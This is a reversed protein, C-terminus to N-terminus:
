IGGRASRAAQSRGRAPDLARPTSLQTEPLRDGGQRTGSASAGGGAAQDRGKPALAGGGAVLGRRRGGRGTGM